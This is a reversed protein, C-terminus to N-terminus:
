TLKKANKLYYKKEPTIIKTRILSKLYASTKLKKALDYAFSRVYFGSSVLLSIKLVPPSYELISFDYLIIETKKPETKINRRALDSLRRGSIKKASYLPATQSFPLNLPFSKLTEMIENKQPLHGSIKIIGDPDLTTSSKGFEIEALYEKKSNKLFLPLKKTFERGVAVILLGEAFRDLTGGHGIKKKLGSSLAHKLRNLFHASTINKPKNFLFIGEM